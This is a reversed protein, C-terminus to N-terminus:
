ARTKHDVRSIAITLFDRLNEQINTLPNSPLKHYYEPNNLQQLAEKIYKAKDMVVVAGGKDAPKIIISENKALLDLAEKQSKTLKQGVTTHPTSFVNEIDYGM